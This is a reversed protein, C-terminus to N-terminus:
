GTYEEWGTNKEDKGGVFEPVPPDLWARFARNSGRFNRNVGFYHAHFRSHPQMAARGNLRTSNLEPARSSECQHDAM